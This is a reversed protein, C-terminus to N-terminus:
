AVTVQSNEKLSCIGKLLESRNLISPEVGHRHPFGQLRARQKWEANKTLTWKLKGVTDTMQVKPITRPLLLRSFLISALPAKRTLNRRQRLHRISWYGSNFTSCKFTSPTETNHVCTHITNCTMCPSQPNRQKRNVPLMIPHPQNRQQGGIEPYLFGVRCCLVYMILHHAWEGRGRLM